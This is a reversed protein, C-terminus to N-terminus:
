NLFSVMERSVSKVQLKTLPLLQVLTYNSYLDLFYLTCLILLSFNGKVKRKNFEQAKTVSNEKLVDLYMYMNTFGM